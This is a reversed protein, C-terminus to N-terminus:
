WKLDETRVSRSQLSSDANFTLNRGDLTSDQYHTEVSKGSSIRVNILTPAIGAMLIAIPTLDIPVGIKSTNEILVAHTILTAPYLMGSELIVAAVSKYRQDVLRAQDLDPDLFSRTVKGMWWIRGASHLADLDLGANACYYGVQIKGGQLFLKWNSAISLDSTQAKLKM